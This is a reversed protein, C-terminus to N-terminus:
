GEVQAFDITQLEGGPVGKVGIADADDVSILTKRKKPGAQAVLVGDRYIEYGTAGPHAEWEVELRTVRLM